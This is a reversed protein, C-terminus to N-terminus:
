TRGEGCLGLEGRVSDHFVPRFAKIKENERTPHVRNTLLVVVLSAEPDIWLSTGTFGLHGRSLPSFYRGCSPTDTSPADWGLPRPADTGAEGGQPRVTWYKRTIEPKLPSRKGWYADLWLRAEQLVDSVNGFLGAHGAVGGLVYCNDDHVEGRLVHGRWPCNETPAVDPSAPLFQLSKLKLPVAIWEQFLADLPAKTRKELLWGLLMFGLDSYLTQKGFGESSWSALIDREYHDRAVDPPEGRYRTHLDLWAPLGSTHSLLHSVKVESSPFAPFHNKVPEDISLLDKQEALATVTTTCLVKTLSALDFLSEVGCGAASFWNADGDFIGVSYSPFVGQHVAEELLAATKPFRQEFRKRPSM